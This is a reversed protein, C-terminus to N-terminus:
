EDPVDDGGERHERWRNQSVMFALARPSAAGGGCAHGGHPSWAGSGHWPGGGRSSWAVLGHGLRSTPRGHM